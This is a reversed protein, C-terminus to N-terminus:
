ISSPSAEAPVHRWDQMYRRFWTRQRKAYQKTATIAQERALDLSIEGRLYAIIDPAGLAKASPLRPNWGNQLSAECEQLAGQALMAEFRGSIRRNLWDTPAALVVAEVQNLQLLPAQPRNHWHSLGIGTATHVEWARQLRMPNNVDIVALTQPDHRRLYDLFEIGASRTRLANGVERVESPIDPIAVLGNLLRTFYLGTGGVIIPRQKTSGLVDRLERLWKGVSYQADAQIHGFLFHPALEQDSTSPRATLIHWNAYVQLADANIIIGNDRQAIALALGSKGAATPGAILLPTTNQTM